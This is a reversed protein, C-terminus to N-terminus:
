RRAAVPDYRLRLMYKIWTQEYAADPEGFSAAFAAIEHEPEVPQGARRSSLGRIYTVFDDHWARDLYYVLAWAQAYRYAQQNGSGGFAGQRSILAKLTVFNGDIAAQRVADATVTQASADAGLAERFDGLRVQNIGMLVKGRGIQPVEFQCALGETLWSPNNAGRPHVGLNFLLQHAAEHQIVFRNFTRVLEDRSLRLRQINSALQKRRGRSAASGATDLQQWEAQLRKIAGTIRQLDPSAAMNCFAAVNSKQDYVGAISAGALGVSALHKTFDEFRDFLIVDLRRTPADTGLANARCFRVVADYTGELRGILPRLSEYSTDYRIAYHDTNLTRFVDRPGASSDDGPPAAAAISLPILLGIVVITPPIPRPFVMQGDVDANEQHSLRSFM